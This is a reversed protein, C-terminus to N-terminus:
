HAGVCIFSIARVILGVGESKTDLFSGGVGMPVHPFKPLISTPCLLTAHLTSSFLLPLIEAVSLPLPFTVISHRYSSVLVRESPVMSSGM